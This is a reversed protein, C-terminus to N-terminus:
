PLVELNGAVGLQGFVLPIFTASVERTAAGYFASAGLEATLGLGGTFLYVVGAALEGGMNPNPELVFPTGARAYPMVAPGARYLAIYSPTFVDQPVGSLATTSACRCATSCGPRRAWSCRAASTSTRRPSSFVSRATSGLPTSLRYPNNFRLSQGVAVTALANAYYGRAPPGVRAPEDASSARPALALAALVVLPAWRARRM